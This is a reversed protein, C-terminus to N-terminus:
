RCTPNFDSYEIMFVREEEASCTEVEVSEGDYFTAYCTRCRPGEDESQFLFCSSLSGSILCIVTLIKVWRFGNTKM